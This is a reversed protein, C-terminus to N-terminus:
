GHTAGSPRVHPPCSARNSGTPFPRSVGPRLARRPYHRADPPGAWGRHAGFPKRRRRPEKHIGPDARAAAAPVLVRAARGRAPLDRERCDRQSGRVASGGGWGPRRRNRRTEMRVGPAARGSRRARCSGGLRSRGICRRGCFCRGARRHRSVISARHARVTDAGGHRIGRRQVTTRARSVRADPQDAGPDGARSTGAPAARRSRSAIRFSRAPSRRSQGAGPRAAHGGLHMPRGCRPPGGDRRSRMTLRTASSACRGEASTETSAFTGAHWTNRPM